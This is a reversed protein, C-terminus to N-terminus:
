TEMRGILLMNILWFAALAAILPLGFQIGLEVVLAGALGCLAAHLFHSAMNTNRGMMLIGLLKLALGLLFLCIPRLVNLPLIGQTRERGTLLNDPMAKKNALTTTTAEGLAGVSDALYFAGGTANAISRLMADGSGSGIFITDITVGNQTFFGLSSVQFSSDEGDSLMVVTVRRGARVAPDVLTRAMDLASSFDTGSYSIARWQSNLSPLRGRLGDDVSTWDLAVQATEGYGVVSLRRGDAMVNIANLLAEHASDRASTMSGGLYSDMSPSCDLVYCIDDSKGQARVEGPTVQYVAELGSAAGGVLVVAILMLVLTRGFYKTVYDALKLHPLRSGILILDTLILFMASTFIAGTGLWADPRWIAVVYYSFATELAVSLVSVLFLPIHIV